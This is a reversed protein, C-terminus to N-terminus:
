LNVSLNPSTQVIKVEDDKNETQAQNQLTPRDTNNMDTVKAEYLSSSIKKDIFSDRDLNILILSSILM